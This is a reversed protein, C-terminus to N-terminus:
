LGVIRANDYLPKDVFGGAAFDKEVIAQSELRDLGGERTWPRRELRQADTLDMRKNALRAEIEGLIRFYKEKNTLREGTFPDKLKKQYRSPGGKGFNKPNGGGQWGERGQIAHQLEHIASGRFRTLAQDDKEYWTNERKHVLRWAEEAEPTTEFM